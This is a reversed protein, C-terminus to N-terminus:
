RTLPWKGKLMDSFLKKAELPWKGSLMDSFLKKAEGDHV